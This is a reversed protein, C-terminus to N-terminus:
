PSRQKIITAPVGGIVSNDPFSKNVVAGAAVVCGCGLTVGDLFIVGAGIWCDDSIIIGQSTVGQDKIPVSVDGFVHNESHFSVRQGMIVNKGIDVGGAAGIFSFAGIGSGDGISCGVGVKQITGTCEIRTYPGISVNRGIRLGKHSLADLYAGQQIRVWDGLDLRRIEKLIVNSGLFVKKRTFVVGRIFDFIFKLLLRFLYIDSVKPDIHFDRGKILKLVSKIM